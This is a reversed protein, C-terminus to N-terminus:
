PGIISPYDPPQHAFSVPGLFRRVVFALLWRDSGELMGPPRRTGVGDLKWSRWRPRPASGGCASGAATPRTTGCTPHGWRGRSAWRSPRGWAPRGRTLERRAGEGFAGM